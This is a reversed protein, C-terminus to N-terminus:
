SENEKEGRGIPSLDPTLSKEAIVWANFSSTEIHVKANPYSLLEAIRPPSLFHSRMLALKEALALLKVGFLRLDPEEIVLRGGPQLTRWLEDLTGRQDIVHHLADVMIIRAFAGNPFPLKETHSCVPRLGDKQRAESLMKCSMDAVVVSDAKGNMFQAVRGTGGGADLLAGPAPLDAFKWMEQPDKPPIFTEYIPALFDFHDFLPM